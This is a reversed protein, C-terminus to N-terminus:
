KHKKERLKKAKNLKAISDFSLVVSTAVMAGGLYYPGKVVQYPEDPNSDSVSKALSGMANAALGLVLISGGVIGIWNAKSHRKSAKTLHLNIVPDNWDYTQTEFGNNNMWKIQGKRLPKELKLVTEPVHTTDVSQSFASFCLSLTLITLLSKM